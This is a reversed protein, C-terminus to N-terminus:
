IIVVIRNRRAVVATSRRGQPRRPNRGWGSRTRRGRRKRWGSGTTTEPTGTPTCRCTSRASKVHKNMISPKSTVVWVIGSSLPWLTMWENGDRVMTKSWEFGLHKVRRGLIQNIAASEKLTCEAQVVPRMEKMYLMFANLPKKIHSEKRKM